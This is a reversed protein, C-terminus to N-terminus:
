RAAGLSLLTEVGMAASLHAVSTCSTVVRECESITKRTAEWDSVDAQQMWEPKHEAGEDRQLSVCDLGEVADFLLSSPFLRHQEHEFRPNGQWRLGVRGPVVDATRKIYSSGDLDEYEWGLISVASMSPVWYDCFVGASAESTVKVPGDPILDFLDRSCAVVSPNIQRIYRMGHIQDGLGGELVLMVDGSAKGDWVPAPTGCHRNGFVDIYRGEDLLRQGVLLNGHRMEYWGRNFRVRKNKSDIEMLTNSVGWGKDFQGSLSLQLQTDLLPQDQTDQAKWFDLRSYTDFDVVGLADLADTRPSRITPFVEHMGDIGWAEDNEESAPINSLDHIFLPQGVFAAIEDMVGQTNGVLDHYQIFLVEPRKGEYLSQIIGHVEKFVQGAQSNLFESASACGQMRMFSAICEATPRLTVVVKHTSDFARDLLKLNGQHAWSRSKDFVFAEPQGEYHADAISRMTRYMGDKQRRSARAEVRDTDACLVAGIIESLNSTPSVHTDPRQNLLSSLLTSGSRPLSALLIM